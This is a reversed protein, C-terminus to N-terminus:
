SSRSAAPPPWPDHHACSAACSCCCLLARRASACGLIVWSSVSRLTCMSPVAVHSEQSRSEVRVHSTAPAALAQHSGTPMYEARRHCVAAKSLFPARTSWTWTWAYCGVVHSHSQSRPGRNSTKSSTWRVGYVHQVDVRGGMQGCTFDMFLGIFYYYYFRLCFFIKSM